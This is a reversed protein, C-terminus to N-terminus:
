LVGRDAVRLLLEGSPLILGLKSFRERQLQLCRQVLHLAAREVPLVSKQRRKTDVLFRKLSM